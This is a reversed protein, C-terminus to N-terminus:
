LLERPRTEIQWFPPIEELLATRTESPMGAALKLLIVFKWKGREKPIFAPSPGLLQGKMNLRKCTEVLGKALKNAEYLARERHSHAFTLKALEGFPPYAFTRRRALEEDLFKEYEGNELFELLPMNADLTQVIMRERTLSKMVELLRFTREAADIQPFVLASEAGLVASLAVHPLLEKKLMQQTGILIDIGGSKFSLLIKELEKETKVSDSDVRAVRAEPVLNKVDKEIQASGAGLPFFKYSQCKACKTPPSQSAGCHHCRLEQRLSSEHLVMAAECNKCRPIYGCTRCIFATANGKRNIFVMAQKRTHPDQSPEFLREGRIVRRLEERLRLTLPHRSSWHTQHRLDIIELHTNQLLPSKTMIRKINQGKVRDWLMVPSLADGFILRAAHLRALKEACELANYKPVRGWAEYSQSSAKEIVVLGLHRWPLFLLSRMGIFIAPKQPNHLSAHIRELSKKGAKKVYLVIEADQESKQLKQFMEMAAYIDPCLLCIHKKQKLAEKLHPLYIEMREEGEIFLDTEPTHRKDQETWGSPTTCPQGLALASGMPAWYTESMWSFLELQEPTYAPIDSIIKKISKVTFASKRIELRSGSVPRTSIVVGRVVRRGIPIEVLAGQPLQRPLFYSFVQPQSRPIKAFPVIDAIYM